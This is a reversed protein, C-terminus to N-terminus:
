PAVPTALYKKQMVNAAMYAGLCALAITAYTQDGIRGFACLVTASAFVINVFVFKRGGLFKLLKSEDPEVVPVAVDVEVSETM